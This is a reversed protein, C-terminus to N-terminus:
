WVEVLGKGCAARQLRQIYYVGGKYMLVLILPYSFPCFRRCIELGWLGRGTKLM